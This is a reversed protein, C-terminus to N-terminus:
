VRILRMVMPLLTGAIEHLRSLRRIRAELHPEALIGALEEMRDLRERGSAMHPKIEEEVFGGIIRRMRIEAVFYDKREGPLSVTQVARFGRLQRLGQSATGISIGLRDMIEEMCLPEESLYLLGYIEGLSKPFGVLQAARIFFDQVEAQLAERASCVEPGAVASGNRGNTRNATLKM